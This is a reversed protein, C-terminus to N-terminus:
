GSGGSHVASSGQEPVDELAKKAAKVEAVKDPTSDKMQLFRRCEAEIVTHPAEKTKM